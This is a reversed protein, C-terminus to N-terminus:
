ITLKGRAAKPDGRKQLLSKARADITERDEKQHASGQPASRTVIVHLVYVCDGYCESFYLRSRSSKLYLIKLEWKNWSCSGWSNVGGGIKLVGERSFQLQTIFRARVGNQLQHMLGETGGTYELSKM